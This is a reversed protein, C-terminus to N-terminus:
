INKMLYVLGWNYIMLGRMLNDIDEMKSFMSQGSIKSRDNSTIFYEDEDYNNIALEIDPYYQGMFSHRHDNTYRNVSPDWATLYASIHHMTGILNLDKSSYQPFDTLIRHKLVDAATTSFTVMGIESIPVGSNLLEHM